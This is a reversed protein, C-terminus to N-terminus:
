ADLSRGLAPGRDGAGDPLTGRAAGAPRSLGRVTPGSLLHEHDDVGLRPEAAGDAPDLEPLVRALLARDPGVLDALDASDLGRSLGRLAQILPSYPLSGEGLEICGGILVLGGAQRVQDAFRTVLRTKGVGAEGAVCLTVPDGVRTAEFAAHLRHLEAARGVFHSAAVTGAMAILIRRVAESPFQNVTPDSM